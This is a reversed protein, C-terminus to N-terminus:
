FAMALHGGSMMLAGIMVATRRGTFRDAIWGGLVPTFYVFGTYLGYVQSALALTTMPGFLSELGARFQAFGAIHEIHGPLFLAQSMYLVLVATMGYYSFREWAETFALFGLAPPEGFFGGKRELTAATM